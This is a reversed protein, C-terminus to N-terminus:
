KNSLLSNYISLIKHGYREESFNEKAFEIANLIIQNNDNKAILSLKSIAEDIDSYLYGNEGDHIIEKTGGSNFGLVPCGYFMAEVTVRGQAENQSCMLLATAKQLYEKVNNLYGLFSIYNKVNNKTAISMLYNKYEDSVSGIYFLKYEPHQKRFGTFINLAVEAGKNPTIHGLFLIYKEKYQINCVDNISRVADHIVYNTHRNNVYFHKAIEKTISITADSKQIMQLLKKWGTFPTFNFDLDQFERLHWIHKIGIKRSLIYGITVVSTNTHILQINEDTVIEKLVKLAKYNICADVIKRPIYKLYRYKNPAINLKFPVIYCQVGLEQLFDFVKGKHPIVVIPHVQFKVSNLLNILSHTSGMIEGSEHSIYLVKIM